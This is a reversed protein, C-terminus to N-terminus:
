FNLFFHFLFAARVGERRPREAWGAWDVVRACARTRQYTHGRDAICGARESAREREAWHSRGTLVTGREGARERTSERGRKDSRDGGGCSDHEHGQRAGVRDFWAWTGVVRGRRELALDLGRV